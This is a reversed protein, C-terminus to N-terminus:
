MWPWPSCVIWTLNQGLSSKKSLFGCYRSLERSRRPAKRMGTRMTPASWCSGTLAASIPTSVVSLIENTGGPRLNPLHETPEETAVRSVTMLSDFSGWFNAKARSGGQMETVSTGRSTRSSSLPPSTTATMSPPPFPDMPTSSGMSSRLRQTVYAGSAAVSSFQLSARFAMQPLRQARSNAMSHLPWPVAGTSLRECVCSSRAEM